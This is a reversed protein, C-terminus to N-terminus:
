RKESLEPDEEAIRSKGVEEARRLEDGERDLAESAKRGEEDVKGSKAHESAKENYDRAATKNGEGQNVVEDFDIEPNKPM